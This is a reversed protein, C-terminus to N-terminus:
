KVLLMKRTEVERNAALRYFYAGSAAPAGREDRGDWRVRHPGAARAEETILAQVRKGQADFVELTVVAPEPLNFGIETAPNFPNPINQALALRPPSALPSGAVQTVDTRYARVDTGTGCIVLVGNQGLTPGGLNVNPM